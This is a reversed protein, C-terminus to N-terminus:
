PSYFIGLYFHSTSCTLQSYKSLWPSVWGLLGPRDGCLVSGPCGVEGVSVLICLLFPPLFSSSPDGISAEKGISEPKGTLM